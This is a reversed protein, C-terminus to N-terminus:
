LLRLIPESFGVRLLESIILLFTSNSKELWHPIENCLYATLSSRNPSEGWTQTLDPNGEMEARTAAKEKIGQPLPM